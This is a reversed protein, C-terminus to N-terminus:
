GKLPKLGLKARQEDWYEKSNEDLKADGGGDGESGNQEEKENRRRQKKPPKTSSSTSKSKKFLSGYAAEKKEKKPKDKKKSKDKKEKKAKEKRPQSTEGDNDRDNGTPSDKRQQKLKPETDDHEQVSRGQPVTDRVPNPKKEQRGQRQDYLIKAAKSGWQVKKLLYEELLKKTVASAEVGIVGYLPSPYVDHELYGEDALMQRLPLRPLAIGCVREDRLLQHVYEDMRLLSWETVGRYKLKRYDTYLPELTEYVQAPRGCLRLYLAGLCRVYKFDEQQIYVNIILEEISPQIQLLKLLLCLFKTPYANGGYSAGICKLQAAKELVDAATLGFCEEKWYRTEYIKQRVIYELLNQPDTGHLNAALPDTVNAMTLRHVVTSETSETTQNGNDTKRGDSSQNTNRQPERREAVILRGSATSM